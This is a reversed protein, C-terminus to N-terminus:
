GYLATLGRAFYYLGTPTVCTSVGGLLMATATSPIGASLCLSAQVACNFMAFNYTHLGTITTAAKKCASEDLQTLRVVEPQRKEASVDTMYGNNTGPGLMFISLPSGPWASLYMEGKPAGGDIRISAHGIAGEAFDPPWYYVEVTM